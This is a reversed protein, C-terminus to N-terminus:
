DVKGLQYREKTQGFRGKTNAVLNNMEGFDEADVWDPLGKRYIGNGYQM